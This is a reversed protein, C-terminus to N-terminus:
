NINREEEFLYSLGIDELEETTCVCVDRLVERVYDTDASQLDNDIYRCLIDAIREQSTKM